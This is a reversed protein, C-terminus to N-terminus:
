WGSLCALPEGIPLVLPFRLADLSSFARQSRCGNSYLFLWRDNSHMPQGSSPEVRIPPERPVMETRKEASPAPPMGSTTRFAAAELPGRAPPNHQDHARELDGRISKDEQGVVLKAISPPIRARRSASQLASHQPSQDTIPPKNWPWPGSLDENSTRFQVPEPTPRNPDTNIPISPKKPTDAMPPESPGLPGTGTALPSVSRPDLASIRDNDGKAM